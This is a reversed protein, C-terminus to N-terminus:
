KVLLLKQTEIYDGSEMRVLYVGGSQNSGDWDISHYGINLKENILTTILKGTIDYIKLSVIRLQPISFSISTTPNFPNPYPPFLMFSTPIIIESNNLSTCVGEVDILGEDCVLTCVGDVDTLGEDCLPQEECNQPQYTFEGLDFDYSYNFGESDIICEPIEDCIYNNGCVFNFIGDLFLDCISEPLSTLENGSLDL